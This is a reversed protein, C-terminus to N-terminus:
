NIGSKQELFLHRKKRELKKQIPDAFEYVQEALKEKSRSIAISRLESKRQVLTPELYDVNELFVEIKKLLTYNRLDKDKQHLKYYSYIIRFFDKGTGRLALLIQSEDVTHTTSLDVLTLIGHNDYFTYGGYLYDQTQATMPLITYKGSKGCSVILCPRGKEAHDLCGNKFVLDKVLVIDGIILSM